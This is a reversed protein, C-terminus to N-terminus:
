KADPGAVAIVYADHNWYHQAAALLQEKTLSNIMDRYGVLYDLGLDYTEMTLITGALGDNSELQLPLRGVYYSKNDDLDSDEILETTLRRAEGLSLEIAREVNVPNVGASISWAGPGLGGDLRSYAYYAMGSQERVVDGIRGMMGFQGLVSNAINAAQFDPASRAPGVVGMVIDSQTKGAIPVGARRIDTLPELPPLEIKETQAPNRWQGLKENVIEVAAGVEVAGVICITMGDPGYQAAHFARMEDITINPVTELTGRSSYHYPHSAPYLNERFARGSQRRTDQQQYQLWTLAEGRLREVQDDPFTPFRLVDDLVDILVDLDEALAKGDFSVRHVGAGVSLDAGIDELESHIADFDRHQTGRMLASSTIAALGSKEPTEYLSGGRLSGEVVVSQTNMNEYVLVVIGNELVIRAINQSNPLSYTIEPLVM